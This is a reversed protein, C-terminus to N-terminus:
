NHVEQIVSTPETLILLELRNIFLNDTARKLNIQASKKNLRKNTLVAKEIAGSEYQRSIIDAEDVAKNYLIKNKEVNMKALEVKDMLKDLNTETNLYLNKLALQNDEIAQQKNEIKLENIGSDFINYSINLIASFDTQSDYSGEISVQPSDEKQLWNLEKELYSKQNINSIFESSTKVINEITKEKNLKDLNVNNTKEKLDTLVKNDPNLNLDVNKELQLSNLLSTKLQSYQQEVEKLNYEADKLDAEGQLLEQQGAENIEAKEKLEAYNNEALELRDKLVNINEELRVLQLYKNLWEKVLEAKLTNLRKKEQHLQNNLRILGKINESPLNPYINMNINMGYIVESGDFDYSVTPSVNINDDSLKKNVSINVKDNVRDVGITDEEVLVKNLNLDAQWDSRSKNLKINRNTTEIDNELQRIELNNKLGKTILEELSYEAAQVGTSLTMLTVLTVLLIVIYKNKM